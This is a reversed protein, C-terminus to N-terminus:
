VGGRHMMDGPSIKSRSKQLIGSLSNPSSSTPITEVGGFLGGGGRLRGLGRKAARVPREVVQRGFPTPGTGFGKTFSWIPNPIKTLKGTKPNKFKGIQKLDDKFLKGFSAQNENPVRVNRGQNWWAVPNRFPNIDECFTKYTKM